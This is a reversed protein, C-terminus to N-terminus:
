YVDTEPVRDIIELKTPFPILRLPAHDGVCARVAIRFAEPKNPSKLNGLKRALTKITVPM